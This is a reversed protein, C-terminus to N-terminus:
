HLGSHLKGLDSDNIVVAVPEIIANIVPIIPERGVDHDYVFGPDFVDGSWAGRHKSVSGCRYRELRDRRLLLWRALESADLAHSTGIGAEVLHTIAEVVGRGSEAPQGGHAVGSDHGFRRRAPYPRGNREARMRRSPRLLKGYGGAVARSSVPATWRPAAGRILSATCQSPRSSHGQPRSRRDAGSAWRLFSSRLSAGWCDFRLFFEALM